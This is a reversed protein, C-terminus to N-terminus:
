AAPPTALFEIVFAHLCTMEHQPARAADHAYRAALSAAAADGAALAARAFARFVVGVDAAEVALGGARKVAARTATDVRRNSARAKALSAHVKAVARDLPTSGARGAGAAATAAPVDSRPLRVVVARSRLQTHLLALRPTACVFRSTNAARDLAAVLRRQQDLRQRSVGQLLVLRADGCIRRKSTLSRLRPLSAAGAGVVAHSAYYGGPAAALSAAVSAEDDPTVVVVVPPLHDFVGGAARLVDSLCPM